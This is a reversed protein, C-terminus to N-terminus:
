KDGLPTGDLALLAAHAAEEETQNNTVIVKMYEIAKDRDPANGQEINAYQGSEQPTLDNARAEKYAEWWMEFQKLTAKPTLECFKLTSAVRKAPLGSMEVLHAIVQDQSILAPTAPTPPQPPPTQAPKGNGNPKSITPPTTTTLTTTTEDIVQGDIVDGTDVVQAQGMEEPTYLGSLEMPFAKRLALSEACKALMVDPMKVWMGTPSGDRKTQVYADYRAVGWVPEKFDPRMVGVKAGAPPKGELWIERWVGDMGCWYPGLQGAYKGTREAVLRFGDIAVQTQMVERQEKSDWRKIAYIQRAFPDLQTRDCQQTFLNFEDDTSGKCITRKLLDIQERTLRYQRAQEETVITNTM